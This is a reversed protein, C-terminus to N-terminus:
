AVETLTVPQQTSEPLPTLMMALTTNQLSSAFMERIQGWRQHAACPRTRDCKRDGMLCQSRPELEQFPAVIKDLALETPPVALSYGGTPGRVSTLVHARVLEHMIKSLYNAPLGLADAISTAKYAQDPGRHAMFLTARLAYEASQNLM